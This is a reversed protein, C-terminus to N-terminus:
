PLVFPVEVQLSLGPAPIKFQLALGRLCTAVDSRHVEHDETIGVAGLQGAADFGLVFGLEIRAPEPREAVAPAWCRAVFEGRRAELALRANEVAREQMAPTVVTPPAVVPAAVPAAAMPTAVPAVPPAVVAPGRGFVLAAAVILSSAVLAGSIMISSSVQM